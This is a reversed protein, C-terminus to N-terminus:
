GGGGGAPTRETAAGEARNGEGDGETPSASVALRTWGHALEDPVSIPGLSNDSILGRGSAGGNEDSKPEAGADFRGLHGSSRTDFVAPKRPEDVAMPWTSLVPTLLGAGNTPPEGTGIGGMGGAGAVRHGGIGGTSAYNHGTINGKRRPEETAVPATSFVSPILRKSSTGAQGEWEGGRGSGRSGLTEGDGANRKSGNQFGRSGGMVDFSKRRPADVAVPNPRFVSPIRGCGSSGEGLVGGVDGFSSVGGSKGYGGGNSDIYGPPMAMSSASGGRRDHQGGGGVVGRDSPGSPSPPGRVGNSRSSMLM